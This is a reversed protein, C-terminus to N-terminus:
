CSNNKLVYFIIQSCSIAIRACDSLLQRVIQTVSPSTDSVQCMEKLAHSTDANSHGLPTIEVSHYKSKLVIAQLRLLIALYDERGGKRSQVLQMAHSSDGCVTLELLTAM